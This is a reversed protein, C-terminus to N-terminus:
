VKIGQFKIDKRPDKNNIRAFEQLLDKSRTDLNKPINVQVKILLDGRGNSKLLPVGKGRLRFVQGSQTGEPITLYTNGEMTPVKIKTGLAAEPFSLPLDCTLNNGVRSFLPHARVKTVIYLDGPEAGHSGSEGKGVLRIKSGTDVGPPIKVKVVEIRKTGGRGGCSPCANVSIRGSGECLPCKQSFQLPGHKKLVVGSGTCEECDKWSGRSDHGTGQCVSCIIKKQISVRASLGRMADDFGIEMPYQINAGRKKETKSASKTGGFLDTFIDSFGFGTKEGSKGFNRFDFGSFDFGRNASSHWGERFGASNGAGVGSHGFQDYMKRKRADSLISYAESIEKFKQEAQADNPNVDPHYKRAVRKYAQKIKKASANRAVGLVEYYDRKSQAM